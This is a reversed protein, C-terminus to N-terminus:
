QWLGSVMWRQWFQPVQTASQGTPARCLSAAPATQQSGARHTPQSVQMLTQGWREEGLTRSSDRICMQGYRGDVGEKKLLDNVCECMGKKRELKRTVSPNTWGSRKVPINPITPIHSHTM